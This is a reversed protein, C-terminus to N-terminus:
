RTLRRIEFTAFYDTAAVEVDVKPEPTLSVLNIAYGDFAAGKPGLNTNIEFEETRNNCSIEVKIRANGAWVCNAGEPCRSDEVLSVFKIKIKDETVAKQEGVQIKVEETKDQGQVTMLAGFAFTMLLTLILMKM